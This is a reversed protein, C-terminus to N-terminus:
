DYRAPAYCRVPVLRLVGNAKLKDFPQNEKMQPRHAEPCIHEMAPAAIEVGPVGIIQFAAHRLMCRILNRTENGIM